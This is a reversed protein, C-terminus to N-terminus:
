LQVIFCKGAPLETWTASFGSKTVSGDTRFRVTITSSSTFPGPVSTGCYRQSFSEYSIEIYDYCCDNACYELNFAQFTLRIDGGNSGRLQWEQLYFCLNRLQWMLSHVICVKNHSNPYDSPYNRSQITTGAGGTAAGIETWSARFGPKTVSGDTRFRVTITSSAIFPGPISSDGCYKQVFSPGHAIEVYDYACSSHSEVQFHTFTM